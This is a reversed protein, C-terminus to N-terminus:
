VGGGARSLGCKPCRWSRFSPHEPQVEVLYIPYSDNSCYQHPPIPCQKLLHRDRTDLFYGELNSYHVFCLPEQCAYVPGDENSIAEPVIMESHHEYCLPHIKSAPALAPM